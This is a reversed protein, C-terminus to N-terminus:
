DDDDVEELEDLLTENKLCDDCQCKLEKFDKGRKKYFRCTTLFSNWYIRRKLAKCKWESWTPCWISSTCSSCLKESM